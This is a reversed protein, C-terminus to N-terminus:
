QLFTSSKLFDLAPLGGIALEPFVILDAGQASALGIQEIIKQGNAEFDAIKLNLQSIAVVM